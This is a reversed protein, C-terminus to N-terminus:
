HRRSDGDGLRGLWALQAAWDNSVNGQQRSTSIWLDLSGSIWPHTGVPPVCLSFEIRYSPRTSSKIRWKPGM